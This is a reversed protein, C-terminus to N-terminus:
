PRSASSFKEDLQNIFWFAIKMLLDFYVFSLLLFSIEQM